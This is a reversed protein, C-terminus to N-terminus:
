CQQGAAVDAIVACQLSDKARHRAPIVADLSPQEIGFFEGGSVGIGVHEIGRPEIRKIADVFHLTNVTSRPPQFQRAGDFVLLGPGLIREVGQRMLRLDRPM